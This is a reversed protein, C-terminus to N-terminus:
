EQKSYTRLHIDIHRDFARNIVDGIFFATLGWIVHGEYRYCPVRYRSRQYVVEYTPDPENELFYRIPVHFLTDLEEPNPVLPHDPDILGIIPTVELGFRSNASPLAGLVAIANAPLGVEEETERLATALLDADTADQKGGPFAIEGAHSNLHDARRTLLLRPEPEDTIPVLVAAQPVPVKGVLPVPLPQSLRQLIPNLLSEQTM